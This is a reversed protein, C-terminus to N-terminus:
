QESPMLLRGNRLRWLRLRCSQETRGLEHAVATIDHSRLLTLDEQATWNRRSHVVRMDPPRRWSAIADAKVQKRGLSMCGPYYLDAALDQAAEKAYLINYVEDRTNRNVTREVGTVQRAYSCVYTSIATSSTTLSLIPWGRDAFGLSGDADILGRLYDREAFGGNPPAIARSKRGYPLGLENLRTRGELSCLTWTASHQNEAYNTSRERETVSSNYPTLHKFRYLLDIDRVNLEVTLRGKRGPGQHLHGDAQLFGFMYAYEPVTLDMFRHANPERDAM